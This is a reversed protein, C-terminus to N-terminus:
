RISARDFISLAKSNTEVNHEAPIGWKVRFFYHALKEKEASIRNREVNSRTAISAFHYFHKYVRMMEFGHYECKAFFDWDVVHPSPYMVDWGGVALYDLKTMAFPLTSGTFDPSTTPLSEEYEWFKKLNFESVETGLNKIFFQKFMSPAPEIQNPTVVRGKRIYKELETDWSRPFVNDDNVVLINESTAHYVGWNTAAPLGQNIELDYISIQGRYKDLVERNVEYHGDIVVIIENKSDQGQIASKICLDLFDPEKFTPIVVSIM